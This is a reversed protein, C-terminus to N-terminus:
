SISMGLSIAIMEAQGKYLHADALNADRLDAGRLDASSLDAGALDAPSVDSFIIKGSFKNKIEM